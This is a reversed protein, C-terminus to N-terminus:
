REGEYLMMAGHNLSSSQLALLPQQPLVRCELFQLNALGDLTELRSWRRSSLGREKVREEDIDVRFYSPEHEHESESPSVPLVFERELSGELRVNCGRIQLVGPQAPIGSLHVTHYSASPVTVSISQPEFACGSTSNSLKVNHFSTPM